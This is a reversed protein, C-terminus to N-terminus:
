ICPIVVLRFNSIVNIAYAAFNELISKERLCKISKILNAVIAVNYIAGKLFMRAHRLPELSFYKHAHLLSEIYVFQVCIIILTTDFPSYERM